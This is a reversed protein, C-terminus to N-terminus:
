LAALGPRCVGLINEIQAATRGAFLLFCCNLLVCWHVCVVVVVVVVDVVAAVVVVVVVVVVADVVM